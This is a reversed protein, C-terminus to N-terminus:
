SRSKLTTSPRPTLFVAMITEGGFAALSVGFSRSCHHEGANAGTGM